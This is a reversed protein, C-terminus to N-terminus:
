AQDDKPDPEPEAQGAAAEKKEPSKRDKYLRYGYYAVVIVIAAVVLYDLYRWIGHVDEWSPGLAYGVYALMANWPVSGVFSYLLFKPFNMKAIGAPLSIVTRIVPLLRAIFTALSGWREFWNEAQMLHKESILIYKGYKIIVARGGYYGAAYALASGFSCGLSGVVVVGWFTMGTEGTWVLYGSFPMVIESPVPMCASELAMLFFVALYEWNSIWNLIGDVIWEVFSM